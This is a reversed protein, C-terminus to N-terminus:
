WSLAMAGGLGVPEKAKVVVPVSVWVAAAVVVEPPLEMALKRRPWTSVKEISRWVVLVGGGRGCGPTSGQPHSARAGVAEGEVEACAVGDSKALVSFFLWPATKM